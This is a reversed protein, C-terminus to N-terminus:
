FISRIMLLVGFIILPIGLIAGIVSLTLLVGLTTLLLGLVAAMTRGILTIITHILRKCADFPWLYWPVHKENTQKENM